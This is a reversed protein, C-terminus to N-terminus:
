IGWRCSWGDAEYPQQFQHEKKCRLSVVDGKKALTARTDDVGLPQGNVVLVIRQNIARDDGSGTSFIRSNKDSVVGRKEVWHHYEYKLPWMQWLAILFIVVGAGTCCLGFWRDDPLRSTFWAVLGVIFVIIGIILFAYGFYSGITMTDALVFM